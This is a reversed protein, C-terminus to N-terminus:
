YLIAMCDPGDGTALDGLLSGSSPDLIYIKDSNFETALILGPLTGLSSIYSLGPGYQPLEIDDLETGLKLDVRLLRNDKANELYLLDDHGIVGSFPAGSLDISQFIELTNLNISEVKGNGIFGDFISYVGASIVILRDPYRESNILGTTDRGSLTNINTISNTKLSVQVVLGPGGATHFSQLNALAVYAFDNIVVVGGPRAWTQIVDEDRPLVIEDSLSIAKKIRSDDNFDDSIDMILIENTIYTTIILTNDDVFDFDMPNSSIGTSIENIISQSTIDIIQLAHSLSNLIYCRDGRIKIASPSQGTKLTNQTSTWIKNKRELLTVNESLSNAILIKHDSGDDFPSLVPSLFNSSEPPWITNGQGVTCSIIFIIFIFLWYRLM